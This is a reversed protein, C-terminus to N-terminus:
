NNSLFEDLKNAKYEPIRNIIIDNLWEQLNIDNTKCSAFFSYFMTYNKAEKHSGAFLYNKKGLALSRIANETLNNDIQYIRDKLYNRINPFVNITYLFAEGILSKSM